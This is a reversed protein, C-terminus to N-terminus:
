PKPEEPHDDSAVTFPFYIWRLLLWRGEYRETPRTQQMRMGGLSEVWAVHPPVGVGTVQVDRAPRAALYGGRARQRALAFMWCNGRNAGPWVRDALAALWSTVSIAGWAVLLPVAAVYTILTHLARRTNM